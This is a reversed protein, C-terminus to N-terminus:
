SVHKTFKSESALSLFPSYRKTLQFFCRANSFFFNKFNVSIGGGLTIFALKEQAQKLCDLKKIWNCSFSSPSLSNSSSFNISRTTYDFLILQNELLFIKLAVATQGSM